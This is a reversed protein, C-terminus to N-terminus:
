KKTDCHKEGEEIKQMIYGTYKNILGDVDDEGQLSIVVELKRSGYNGDSMVRGITISEVKEM